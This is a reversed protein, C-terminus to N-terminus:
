EQVFALISGTDVNLVRQGNSLCSALVNVCNSLHFDTAYVVFGVMVRLM